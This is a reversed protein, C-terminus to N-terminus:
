ETQEGSAVGAELEEIRAPDTIESGDTDFWKGETQRNAIEERTIPDLERIGFQVKIPRDFNEALKV